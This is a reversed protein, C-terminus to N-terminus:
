SLADLQWEIGQKQDLFWWGSGFQIKGPRGGEQFTGAMSAMMYNDRPNVNYLIVQPLAGRAALRDLYAGLADAQPWDGISDYGSDRGSTQLARSNANRRAGLHLQKTWDRAADLEGFFLMMFSAYAAHDRPDAAAGARANGFVRAATSEPVDDAYCWPLGHDSLRGGAAHFADHRRRLAELLDDFRAIEMDATRGLREVWANFAGPDHVDLARDPRFAPYVKTSLPSAAIRAHADLDDAPDDTTCLARVNFKKLI